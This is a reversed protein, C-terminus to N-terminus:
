KNLRSQLWLHSALSRERLVIDNERMCGKRTKIKGHWVIRRLRRATLLRFHCDEDKYPLSWRSFDVSVLDVSMSSNSLWHWCDQWKAKRKNVTAAVAQKTDEGASTHPRTHWCNAVTASPSTQQSFLNVSTEENESISGNSAWGLQWWTHATGAAPCATPDTVSQRLNNSNGTQLPKWEVVPM